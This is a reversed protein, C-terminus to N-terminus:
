RLRIGFRHVPDGGDFDGYAYDISIRDASFGAGFTLPRIDSDEVYRGGIRAFFTRGPVPWYSIEAGSGPVITGDEWHSISLALSLDLPGVQTQPSAAALTFTRPLRTDDQTDLQPDRGLNRASIDLTIPGVRRALGVDAAVTVDREGVVRVEAIKGVVGARFGFLTRAYGLSGVFESAAVSGRDGLGAEGRVYAGKGLDSAGYSIAQLGIALGGNWWQGAAAVSLLTSSSGYAAVAGALGRAGSVLAPHHFLVDADSSVLPFANGLAAARVSAPLQVALPAYTRSQGALPTSALAFLAILSSATAKM